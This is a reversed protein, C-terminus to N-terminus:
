REEQAKPLAVARLTGNSQDYSFGHVRVDNARILEMAQLARMGHVINALVGDHVADPHEERHELIDREESEEALHGLVQALHGTAGSNDSMLATIAGCREHGMVIVNRVGLHEVAFQLSGLELEGDVINGANRIVFLDGISQDFILEPVLRSDSCTIVVAKPAQGEATAQIQSHLDAKNHTDDRRFREHGAMLDEMVNVSPPEKRVQTCSPILLM